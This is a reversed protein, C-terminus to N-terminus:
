INKKSEYILSFLNKFDFGESFSQNEKRYAILKEKFETIKNKQAEKVRLM